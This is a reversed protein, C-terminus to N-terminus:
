LITFLFEFRCNIPEVVEFVINKEKGDSSVEATLAISGPNRELHVMQQLLEEKLESSVDLGAFIDTTEASATSRFYSFCIFM